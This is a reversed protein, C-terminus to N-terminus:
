VRRTTPTLILPLRAEKRKIMNVYDGILTWDINNLVQKFM